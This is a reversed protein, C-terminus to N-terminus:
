SCTPTDGSLGEKFLPVWEPVERSRDGSDQVGFSHLRFGMGPRCAGPQPGKRSQDGSAQAGSIRLRDGSAKAPVDFFRPEQSVALIPM